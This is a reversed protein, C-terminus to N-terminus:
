NFGLKIKPEASKWASEILTDWLKLARILHPHPISKGEERLQRAIKVDRMYTDSIGVSINAGTLWKGKNFEDVEKKREIFKFVNEDDDPDILM